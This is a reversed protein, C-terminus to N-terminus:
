LSRGSAGKRRPCKGPELEVIEDVFRFERGHPLLNLAAQRERDDM